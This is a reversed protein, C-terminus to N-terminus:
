PEHVEPWVFAFPLLEAVPVVLAGSIIVRLNPFYDAM